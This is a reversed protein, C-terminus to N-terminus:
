NKTKEEEKSKNNASNIKGDFVIREEQKKVTSEM